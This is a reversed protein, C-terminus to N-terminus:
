MSIVQWECPGDCYIQTASYLLASYEKVTLNTTGGSLTATLTRDATGDLISPNSASTGNKLRQANLTGSISGTAAVTGDSGKSVSLVFTRTMDVSQITVYGAAAVTGRQVKRMGVSTILENLPKTLDSNVAKKIEAWSM